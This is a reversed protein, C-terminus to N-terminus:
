LILWAKETWPHQAGYLEKWQRIHCELTIEIEWNCTSSSLRKNINLLDWIYVHTLCALLTEPSPFLYKFICGYLAALELVTGPASSHLSSHFWNHRCSHKMLTATPSLRRPHQFSQSAPPSPSFRGPSFHCRPAIQDVSCHEVLLFFKWPCQALTPTGSGGPLTVSISFWVLGTSRRHKSEAQHRSREMDAANATEPPKNSLSTAVWTWGEGVSM